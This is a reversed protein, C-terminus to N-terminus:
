LGAPRLVPLMAGHVTTNVSQKGLSGQSEAAVSSGIQLLAQRGAGEPSPM